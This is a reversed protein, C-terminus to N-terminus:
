KPNEFGIFFRHSNQSWDRFVFCDMRSGLLGISFAVLGGNIKIPWCQCYVDTHWHMSDCKRKIKRNRRRFQNATRKQRLM